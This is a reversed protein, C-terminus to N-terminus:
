NTEVVHIDRESLLDSSSLLVQRSTPDLPQPDRASIAEVGYRLAGTPEWDVLVSMYTGM